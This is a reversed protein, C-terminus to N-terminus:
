YANQSGKSNNWKNSNSIPSCQWRLLRCRNYWNSCQESYKESFVRRNLEWQENTQGISKHTIRIDYVVGISVEKQFNRYCFDVDYFHFGVVSEDFREEIKTKDVAIFLGDVM